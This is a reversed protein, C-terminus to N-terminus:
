VPSECSENEKFLISHLYEVLGSIQYYEAETLL